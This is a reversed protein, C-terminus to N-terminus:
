FKFTPRANRRILQNELITEATNTGPRGLWRTEGPKLFADFGITVLLIALQPGNM